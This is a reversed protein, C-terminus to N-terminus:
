NLYFSQDHDLNAGNLHVRFIFVPENDAGRNSPNPCSQASQVKTAKNLMLSYNNESGIM